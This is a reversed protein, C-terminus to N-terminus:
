SVEGTLFVIKEKTVPEIFHKILNWIARFVTPADMVYVKLMREPYHDRLIYILNKTMALSPRRSEHFKHFDFFIIIKEEKDNSKRETCAIAREIM